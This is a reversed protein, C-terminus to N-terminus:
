LRFCVAPDVATNLVVSTLSKGASFLGVREFKTENRRYVEVYRGAPDVLWYERVGYAEYLDFKRGRDRVATGPSLVEIILDPAGRLYKGEVPQCLSEAAIWVLDPQVVIGTDLHVDTPALYVKGEVPLASLFLSAAGVTDQHNLEPAPSVIVEGDILEIRENTEPLALFEEATM